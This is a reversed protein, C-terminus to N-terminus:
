GGGVSCQTLLPFGSGPFYAKPEPTQSKFALTPSSLPIPILTPPPSAVSLSPRTLSSLPSSLFPPRHPLLLSSSLSLVCHFITFPSPTSFSVSHLFLTYKSHASVPKSGEESMQLLM